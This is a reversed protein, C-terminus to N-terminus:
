LVCSVVGTSHDRKSSRSWKGCDRCLFRQFRATATYAYGERILEESGCAPCVDAGAMAGYSPISPIWPMLERFLDENLVVDRKNYQEMQGWAEPDDAMCRKWLSFGDHETKGGLGLEKCVSDLKSSPFGFKAKVVRYLDVRKYPAPPLFGNTLFERNLRPEDFALGNYHVIVDADSLLDHAAELMPVHGDTFDSYFVAETDETQKEIWKAAFCIIQTTEVLAEPAIGRELGRGYLQWVYALNPSTEIDISLIRM